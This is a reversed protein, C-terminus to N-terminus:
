QNTSVESEQITAAQGVRVPEKLGFVAYGDFINIQLSKQHEEVSLGFQKQWEAPFVPAQSSRPKGEDKQILQYTETSKLDFIFLNEGNSQILKGLIRYRYDPNWSM